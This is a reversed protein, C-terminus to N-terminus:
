NLFYLRRFGADCHICYTAHFRVRVYERKEVNLNDLQMGVAVNTHIETYESRLDTRAALVKIPNKSIARRRQM